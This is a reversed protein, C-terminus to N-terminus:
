SRGKPTGLEPHLKLVTDFAETRVPCYRELVKFFYGLEMEPDHALHTQGLVAYEFETQKYLRASASDGYTTLSANCFPQADEKMRDDLWQGRDAGRQYGIAALETVWDRKTPAPTPTATAKKTTPSITTTPELAAPTSACGSM